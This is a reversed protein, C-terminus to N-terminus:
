ILSKIMTILKFLISVKIGDPLSQGTLTKAQSISLRTLHNINSPETGFNFYAATKGKFNNHHKFLEKVSKSEYMFISVAWFIGKVIVFNIKFNYSEDSFGAPVDIKTIQLWFLSTFAILFAIKKSM